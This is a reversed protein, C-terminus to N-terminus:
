TVRRPQPRALLRELHERDLSVSGELYARLLPLRDHGFFVLDDVIWTPVGWAGRELVQETNQKLTRRPAPNSALEIPDLSLGAETGCGRVVEPEALDLGNVWAAKFCARVFDRRTDLDGISVASRLAYISNFPHTPPGEFPLGLHRCLLLVDQLQQRRRAPIEGPGLVGRRSLMTGLVVPVDEYRVGSPPPDRDILQSALYSYPSIFDFHFSVVREM